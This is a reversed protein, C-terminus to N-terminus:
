YFWRREYVLIGIFLIVPMLWIWRETLREAWREPVALSAVLAVVLAGLLWSYWLIAPGAEALPLAERRFGGLVPYYRFMATRTVESYFFLALYAIGFVVGFVNVRASRV